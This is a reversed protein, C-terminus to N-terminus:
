STRAAAIDNTTMAHTMRQIVAKRKTKDFVNLLEMIDPDYKPHTAPWYSRMLYEFVRGSLDTTSQLLAMNCDDDRISNSVHFFFVHPPPFSFVRQSYIEMPFAGLSNM